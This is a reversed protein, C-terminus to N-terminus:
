CNRAERVKRLSWFVARGYYNEGAELSLAKGRKRRQRKNILAQM